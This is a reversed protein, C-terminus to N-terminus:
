CSRRAWPSPGCWASGSSCAARCSAPYADLFDGLGVEDLLAATEDPRLTAHTEAGKNVETLLRVNQRVTRWPLLAPDQPCSASSSARAPRRRRTGASPSRAADADLLGGVLRLLTSKGCGSPGILSVFEGRGIALDVGDLATM